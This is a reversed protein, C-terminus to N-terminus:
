EPLTDLQLADTRFLPEAELRILDSGLLLARRHSLPIEMKLKGAQYIRLCVQGDLAVALVYVRNNM